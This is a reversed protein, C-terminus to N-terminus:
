AVSPSSKASLLREEESGSVSASCNNTPAQRVRKAAFVRRPSVRMRCSWVATAAVM